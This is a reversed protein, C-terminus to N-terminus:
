RIGGPTPVHVTIRPGGRHLHVAQDSHGTPFLQLPSPNCDNKHVKAAPILTVLNTYRELDAIRINELVAQIAIAVVKSKEISMSDAGEPRMRLLHQIAIVYSLLTSRAAEQTCQQRVATAVDPYEASYGRNHRRNHIDQQAKQMIKEIVHTQLGAPNHHYQQIIEALREQQQFRLDLLHVQITACDVVISQERFHVGLVRDCIEPLMALVFASCAFFGLRHSQPHSAFFDMEKTNIEAASSGQLDTVIPCHTDPLAVIRAGATGADVIFKQNNLICSDRQAYFETAECIAGTKIDHARFIVTHIKHPDLVTLYANNAACLTVVFKKNEQSKEALYDAANDDLPHPQRSEELTSMPAPIIDGYSCGPKAAPCVPLLTLKLAEAMGLRQVIKRYSALTEDLHSPGTIFIAVDEPHISKNQISNCLMVFSAEEDTNRPSTYTFIYFFERSAPSLTSLSPSEVTTQDLFM